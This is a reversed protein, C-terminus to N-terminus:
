LSMEGRLNQLLLEQAEAMNSTCAFVCMMKTLAAETTMDSGGLVGIRELQVSTAYLGQNVYGGTCQSVNLVVVGRGIAEALPEIVDPCTPVNGSGYTEIVVGRLGPLQLIAQLYARSIGPFFKILAVQEELQEQVHFLVQAPERWLMPENYEIYIGAQALAPYNYSEFATFNFNQVKKSRNGRLLKNDFCICVEQVLMQGQENRTAAIELASILNERADTRPTGIPLQAGTLIVPKRLGQLMFSLASATFSMTDTGHLIVFGDFDGYYKGILRAMTSWNELTIESSDILPEISLVTLRFDFRKLEPVKEIITEFDFPVLSGTEQDHDMGITGGTYIILLSTDSEHPTATNISVTKYSQPM